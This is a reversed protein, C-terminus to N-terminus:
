NDCCQDPQDLFCTENTRGSASKYIDYSKWDQGDHRLQAKRTKGTGVVAM